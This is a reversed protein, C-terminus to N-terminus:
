QPPAQYQQMRQLEEQNKKLQEQMQQMQLSQAQLLQQDQVLASPPSVVPPVIPTLLDERTVAEVQEDPAKQYRLKSQRTTQVVSAEAALAQLVLVVLCQFAPMSGAM